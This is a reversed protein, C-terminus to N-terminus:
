KAKTLLVGGIIAFLVMPLMAALVPPIQYVNSMPGVFQNFIHFVFGLVIGALMRLGMTASRLPGFVFPIALLIMILASIPAFIRQWFIFEYDLASLGIQKRHKIYSYLKIISEQDPHMHVAEILKRSLALPWAQLPISANTIRSSDTFITQIIDYFVWAGGKHLGKQAYSITKIKKNENFEYRTIGQLEKDGSIADIHLFSNQSRVWIGQKTVLAQGGSMAMAKKHMAKKQARPAVGEGILFIIIILVIAAKTIAITIDFLSLGAARMAILESNSALLGMGLVCGLLGAMPFFQYIDCPLLLLVCTFMEPLGYNGTGIHPFEHMFEIFLELGLLFLIVMAIYIVITKGLYKTLINM